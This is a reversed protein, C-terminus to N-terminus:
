RYAGNNALESIITKMRRAGDHLETLERKARDYREAAAVMARADITGEPTIAEELLQVMEPEIGGVSEIADVLADNIM